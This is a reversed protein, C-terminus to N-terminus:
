PDFVLRGATRLERLVSAMEAARWQRCRRMRIVGLEDANIGVSRYRAWLHLLVGQIQTFTLGRIGARTNARERDPDDVPECADPRPMGQHELGLPETAALRSWAALHSAHDGQATSKTV